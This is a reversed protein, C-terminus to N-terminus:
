HAPAAQPHLEGPAHSATDDPTAPAAPAPAAEAPPNAAPANAAAAALAASQDATVVGTDAAVGSAEAAETTAEPAPEEAKSCASLTLAAAAAVLIVTIRMSFDKHGPVFSTAEPRV